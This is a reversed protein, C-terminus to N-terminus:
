WARTQRQLLVFLGQPLSPFLSSPPPQSRWLPPPKTTNFCFGKWDFTPPQHPQYRDSCFPYHDTGSRPAIQISIPQHSTRTGKPALTIGATHLEEESTNLSNGLSAESGPPPLLSPLHYASSLGTSLDVCISPLLLFLLKPVICCNCTIIVHLSVFTFVHQGTLSERTDTNSLPEGASINPPALISGIIIGRPLASVYM